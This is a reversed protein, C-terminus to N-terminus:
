GRSRAAVVEAWFAAEATLLREIYPGDRPVRLHVDPRGPLHCFFDIQPLGTVALIHQLQGYYYRPVARKSRAYHHVREGCKIEVVASGDVALGDLSARLWDHQKSQVCVPEVRSGFMAEYRGRAIPEM